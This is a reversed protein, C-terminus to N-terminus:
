GDGSDQVAASRRDLTGGPIPIRARVREGAALRQGGLWVARLRLAGDMEVLDARAGEAIRGIDREGLYDAPLTSLRAAAEAVPLGIAVLHRLAADMTLVSGALTGDALEVRTGRKVVEHRGLRYRGDPMGTAAVADTVGYLGPIARRAALIAGAAVHELDPIIEAWTGHALAATAVGPARHALGSMANFLHTFGCAGAELAALAESYSCRSHGIQIRVGLEALRRVLRLDRDVEPALTVVRVVSTALLRDVLAFDPATAFPPQAGLAAPSIFPGELHLGLVRAERAGPRRVVDACAAAVRILEDAPATVSTALLATTGHRLHFAATCRIGEEGEMVDRGGGGHVHLDVFGPLVLPEQPAEPDPEVALIHSDFHIRAPVLGHPLLIRGRLTEPM